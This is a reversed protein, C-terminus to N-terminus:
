EEAFKIEHVQRLARYPEDEFDYNPHSKLFDSVLTSKGLSHSGSIAIRMSWGGILLFITISFTQVWDLNFQLRKQFNFYLAQM